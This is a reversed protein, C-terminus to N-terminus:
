PASETPTRTERLHRQLESYLVSAGSEYAAALEEAFNGPDERAKDAMRHLKGIVITLEESYRM